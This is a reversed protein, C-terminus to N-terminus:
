ISYARMANGGLIAEKESESFSQFFGEVVGLTEGYTAACTSVPWDSGFMLRSTGFTEVMIELYPHFDEKQWQFNETETVMGSLKAYVNENRGLERIDNIWQVSPKESIDPKGLHNLVFRQEPVSRVLTVASSLQCPFVLLDFSLGYRYFTRMGRQFSPELLFEGKEDYVTHRIGKLAPFGSYQELKEELDEACPDLWGVVGLIFEHRAALDLLSKTETESAEVQVAICGDMRNKKLLPELQGPTFDKRLSSM